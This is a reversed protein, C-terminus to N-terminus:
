CIQLLPELDFISAVGCVWDVHLHWDQKLHPRQSEYMHQMQTLKFNPVVWSAQASTRSAPLAHEFPKALKTPQSSVVLPAVALPRAPIAMVTLELSDANEIVDDYFDQNLLVEAPDQGAVHQLVQDTRVSRLMGM